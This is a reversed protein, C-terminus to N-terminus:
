KLRKERLLTTLTMVLAAMMMTKMTNMLTTTQKIRAVLIM